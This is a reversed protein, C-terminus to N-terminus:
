SWVGRGRRKLGRRRPKRGLRKIRHSNNGGKLGATVYVEDSEVAVNMRVSQARERLSLLLRKMARFVTMYSRGTFCSLGLSSNHLGLFLLM